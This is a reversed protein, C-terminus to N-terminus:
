KKQKRHENELEVAVVVAIVAGAVVEVKKMM